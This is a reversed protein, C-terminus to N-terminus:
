SLYDNSALPGNQNFEGTVSYRNPYKMLYPYDNCVYREDFDKRESNFSSSWTDIGFSAQPAKEFKNSSYIRAQTGIDTTLSSFTPTVGQTLKGADNDGPICTTNKSNSSSFPKCGPCDIDAMCQQGSISCRATPGCMNGCGYTTNLPINVNALNPSTFHNSNDRSNSSADINNHNNNSNNDSNQFCETIYKNEVLYDIWIFLAFLLM